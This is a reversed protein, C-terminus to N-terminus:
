GILKHKALFTVINKGKPLMEIDSQTFTRMFLLLIIYIVASFLICMITAFISPLFMSFGMYSFYACVGCVIGGILPKIIVKMFDFKIKTRKLMVAMGAICVFLYAVFSGMTAGIINISIMSVFVYNLVVKVGMAILYLILPTNIKGVAQLISCIPTSAAIVIVALGMVRLVNAGIIASNGSYFISLIPYPIAILGFGAPFTVLMTLKLVTEISHKLETKDGKTYSDTVNPLASTGFAQTITTVLQMITLAYGYCGYLFTHISIPDDQTPNLPILEDLGFEKYQSLLGERNNVATNYLVNQIVMTDVTSSLAMVIAALGIPVATKVLKKFTERRSIADVSNRYYEEPIRYKKRKSMILLTLYSFLSGVSIGSIAAAVSFGLLTYIADREGSFTMGFFGGTENFQSMGTTMVIYALTLGVVVKTLIEIVESLATPFMNRQGEFYGRYISVLCGFFISPALTLMSYISYPSKIIGVYIYSIGIMLGFCVAGMIVFFPKSINHIRRMDNYREKAISESILRSVAIPFGATALTFLPIYVEYANGLLGTGIGAYFDGFTNYYMRTLVVKYLMGLLKVIIMGVSMILAGKLFTQSSSKQDTVNNSM